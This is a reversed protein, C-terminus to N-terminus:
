SLAEIFDNFYSDGAAGTTAPILSYEVFDYITEEDDNYELNVHNNIFEELKDWNREIFPTFEALWVRNKHKVMDVNEFLFKNFRGYPDSDLTQDYEMYAGADIVSDYVDTGDVIDLYEILKM